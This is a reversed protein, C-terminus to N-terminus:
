PFGVVSGQRVGAGELCKELRQHHDSGVAMVEGFIEFPRRWMSSLFRHGEHEVLDQILSGAVSTKSSRFQTEHAGVVMVM